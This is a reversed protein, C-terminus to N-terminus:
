CGIQHPQQSIALGADSAPGRERNAADPEAVAHCREDLAESVGIGFNPLHGRERETEDAIRGGGTSWADGAVPECNRKGSAWFASDSGFRRDM